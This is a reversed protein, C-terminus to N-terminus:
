GRKRAVRLRVTDSSTLVASTGVYTVVLRHKGPKLRKIRVVARGAPDLTASGVTKGKRTVVVRGTPVVSGAAVAIRVKGRQTRAVVTRKLDALTVSTAPAPAPQDCSEASNPSALATCAFATPNISEPSRWVAAAAEYDSAYSILSAETYATGLFTIAVPRRNAPNYGAPLTLSPYGARAGIGTTQASSVIASVNNTTLVTDIGNRSDAIGQDRAAVYAARTTSDNLDVAESQTLLTQGFKLAVDAHADNYAIVDALTRIPASAPLRSLYANLDRKFELDLIGRQSTGTPASVDVLTAGQDRLVTLADAYPGPTGLAAALGIVGLRVGQLGTTGVSATYDVDDFGASRGDQTAADEPDAGTTLGTLVAAADFVSRTMPGATDQSASIPIVGTRSILGVTPKIGVLSNANAPSLISGSTETGVTAAAMATSAAVGSGASSGSPTQSLDYANLVQGGLSSYGAPMGATTYNAFETLNTKGLIIAGAAKLSAALPSDARPYSNALAVSGATTPMGAVDINDKVLIPIGALPGTARGAARAADAAQADALATASLQRIANLRPGAYNIADIRALYAKVLDVSTFTGARLGAQLQQIGATALDLGGPLTKPSVPAAAASAAPAQAALGTAALSASLVAAGLAHALRPRHRRPRAPTVDLHHM